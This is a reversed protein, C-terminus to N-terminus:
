KEVSVTKYLMATFTPAAYGKVYPHVYDFGTSYAYPAITGEELLIREAEAYDKARLAKDASQGAERVLADYRENSWGTPITRTGTIWLDMMSSPDNFDAYYSKYGMQYDLNRNREQFVPWEVPDLELDVGLRTKYAQQLYEAFDRTANHCMLVIKLGEPAENMGLEKLGEALLAKPDPHAATLEKIPDGALKRFNEGDLGMAPPLWGWAAPDLGLSVDKHIEERDLALSFALRVKPSSFPPVTQNFFVYKTEPMAVVNKVYGGKEDLKKAWEVSYVSVLDLGGNEFDGVKASEEAVVKMELRDLKVNDADWYLPNKVFALSSNHVWDALNFPGCGVIKDADTGYADGFKEVIDRRAPFMATGAASQLLYPVPHELRVVLTRDDPAELGLESLPKNGLLVEGANKIFRVKGSIPSTTAPDLVRSIGYVFDSARLPEGDAWKMERLHFTWTLGDESTEWSEACAPVAVERGDRVIIGTLGEIVQSAVMASYYDSVRAVNFSDPEEDIPICLVQPEGAWAAGAFISSLVLCLSLAWAASSSRTVSKMM